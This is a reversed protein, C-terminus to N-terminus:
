LSTLMFVALDLVGMGSVFGCATQPLGVSFSTSRQTQFPDTRSSQWLDIKLLGNHTFNSLIM